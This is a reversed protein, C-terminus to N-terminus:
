EETFIDNLNIVLGSLTKVPVLDGKAFKGQFVYKQNELLFVDLVHNFTDVIWYELVGSEEYIAFKEHTDKYSTSPSLIEIILDPSGMCGKDDLKNPDCIVCLDPQVVTTTTQDNKTYILRVDFPASRLQCPKGKLFAYIEGNLNVSIAQHKNALAPSIRYIKGKILEVLESFQWTLYDAYTYSKNMDLENIDTIM